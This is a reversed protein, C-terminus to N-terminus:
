MVNKKGIKKSLYMLYTYEGIFKALHRHKEFFWLKLRTLVRIRKIKRLTVKGKSGTEYTVIYILFCVFEIIAGCILAIINIMLEYLVNKLGGYYVPNRKRDQRLM